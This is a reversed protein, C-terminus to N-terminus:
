PMQKRLAQMQADRIKKFENWEVLENELDIIKRKQDDNEKQLGLTRDLMLQHSLTKADLRLQLDANEKQLAEVTRADIESRAKLEHYKGSLAEYAASHKKFTSSIKELVSESTWLIRVDMWSMQEFDVYDEKSCRQWMEATKHKAQYFVKDDDVPKIESM